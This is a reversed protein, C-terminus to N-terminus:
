SLSHLACSRLCARVPEPEGPVDYGDADKKTTRRLFQIRKSLKGADVHM